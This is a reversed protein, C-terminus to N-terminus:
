TREVGDPAPKVARLQGLPLVARSGEPAKSFKIVDNLADRFPELGTLPIIISDRRGINVTETIRLFTGQPNENLNFTFQKREVQVDVSHHHTDV